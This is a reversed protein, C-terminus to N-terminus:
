PVQPSPPIAKPMCAKELLVIQCKILHLFLHDLPSGWLALLPSLALFPNVSSRYCFDVPVLILPLSRGFLVAPALEKQGAEEGTESTLEPSCDPALREESEPPSLTALHVGCLLSSQGGCPHAIPSGM